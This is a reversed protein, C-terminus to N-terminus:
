EYIKQYTKTDHAKESLGNVVVSGPYASPDEETGQESYVGVTEGFSNTGTFNATLTAGAKQAVLGIGAWNNKDTTINKFNVTIDGASNHNVYIGNKKGNKVTVNELTANSYIEILNDGHTVNVGDITLNKIIVGDNAIYLGEASNAGDGTNSFKLEHGNGDITVGAAPIIPEDVSINDTLVIRTISENELAEKLDKANGM